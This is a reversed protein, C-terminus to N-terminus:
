SWVFSGGLFFSSFLIRPIESRVFKSGKILVMSAM